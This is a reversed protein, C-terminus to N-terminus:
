KKSITCDVSVSSSVGNEDVINSEYSLCESANRVARKNVGIVETTYSITDTPLGNLTGTEVCECTFHRKCSVIIFLIALIPTKTMDIM